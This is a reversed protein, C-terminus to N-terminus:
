KIGQDGQAKEYDNIKDELDLLHYHEHSLSIPTTLVVLEGDVEIHCSAYGGVDADLEHFTPYKLIKIMQYLDDM